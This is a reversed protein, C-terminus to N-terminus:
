QITLTKLANDLKIPYFEENLILVQNNGIDIHLEYSSDILGYFDRKHILVNVWNIIKEEFSYRNKFNALETQIEKESISKPNNSKILEPIMNMKRDNVYDEFKNFATTIITRNISAPLDISIKWFNLKQPKNIQIDQQIQTESPNCGIMTYETVIEKNFLLACSSMTFGDWLERIEWWSNTKPIQTEIIWTQTATNTIVKTAPEVIKKDKEDNWDITCSSLFLLPILLLTLNKM